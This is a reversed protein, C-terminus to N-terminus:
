FDIKAGRMELASFENEKLQFLSKGIKKLIIGHFAPQYLSIKKFLAIYSSHPRKIYIRDLPFDMSAPNIIHFDNIAFFSSM